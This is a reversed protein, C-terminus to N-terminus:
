VYGRIEEHIGMLTNTKLFAAMAVKLWLCFLGLGEISLLSVLKICQVVELMMLMMNHLSQM